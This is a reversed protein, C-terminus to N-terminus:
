TVPDLGGLDVGGSRRRRRTPGAAPKAQRKTPTPSPSNPPASTTTAPPETAAPRTSAFSRAAAPDLTPGIPILALLAAPIPVPTVGAYGLASQTNVNDGNQLPYRVGQDNVLYVTTTAAVGPAPQARVLAGGGEPVQVHDVTVGGDQAVASSDGDASPAANDSVQITIPQTGASVARLAACLRPDTVGRVQPRTQPFGDAEVKDTSLAQAAQAPTIETAGGGDATLLAAMVSGITALGSGTLVYSQQGSRYVQGIRGPAGAVDRPSTQGESSLRVPALDPGATISNLLATGIRVPTTSALELATLTTADSIRLRHDNWLLYMPLDNGSRATSALLAQNGLAQGGGPVGGVVLETSVAGASASPPSSCVSWPLGVLAGAAPPPDPADRIGVPKGGPLRELSKRSMTRVQPNPSGVILLASAYNLVPHLTGEVYVFRAGTERMIVIDNEQPRGGTPNIFGIVGVVALVITAVVLSGFLAMALRRAPLETSEPEGSLMASVIRRTVFRHARVQEHRSPM